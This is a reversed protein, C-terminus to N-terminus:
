LAPGEGFGAAEQTIYHRIYPVEESPWASHPTPVPQCSYVRAIPRTVGGATPAEAAVPVGKAAGEKPAPDQPQAWVTLGGVAWGPAAGPLDHRVHVAKLM